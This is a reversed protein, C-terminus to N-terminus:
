MSKGGDFVHPTPWPEVIMQFFKIVTAFISVGYVNFQIDDITQGIGLGNRLAAYIQANELGLGPVNAVLLPYIAALLIFLAVLFKISNYKFLKDVVLFLGICFIFQYRFSALLILAVSFMVWRKQLFYYTVASFFLLTPIEKLVGILYLLTEPLLIVFFIIKNGINIQLYNAIKKLYLSTIFLLAVNLFTAVYWDGDLVWWIMAPVVSNKVQADLYLQISSSLFIDRYHIADSQIIGIYGYGETEGFELLDHFM